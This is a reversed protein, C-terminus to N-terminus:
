RGRGLVARGVPEGVVAGGRLVRHGRVWTSHVWGTLVQGSYPTIPHRHELRAPDVEWSRAPDWAVLDAAQGPAVGLAADLGLLRRPGVSLWRMADVAGFGRRLAETHVAALGLQLSAIGGWAAFFDGTDFRKLAPVCPSHDTVAFDITGDALAAWLAERNSGERIPPACKFATAGDPVEEASLCLYHPCTEVTLPLGRDKARRIMPLATSSSLHVIHAACGTRAVADIVLAVAADEWSKPRSHLYALYSRPDRDGVAERLESELEAHVLLPAGLDRLVGMARHLTAEDTAPFDDIGSHCLFCKFGVAGREVMPALQDHNGPVVGGWFSADVWLKGEAAALKAELADATTTVPDSNLPMDVIRAIGGAAAARTSTSFGEWATRGPENCHVHSDVLARGLVLGGLEEVVEGPDARDRVAVVAGDRVSVVAPRVGDACVVRESRLHIM